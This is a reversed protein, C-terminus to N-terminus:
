RRGSGPRSHHKRPRTKGHHVSENQQEQKSKLNRIMGGKPVLRGLLNCETYGACGGKADPHHHEDHRGCSQVPVSLVGCEQGARGEFENWNTGGDTTWRFYASRSVITFDWTFSMGVEYVGAPRSPSTYDNLQTYTEPINLINSAKDYDYTMVNLVEAPDVTQFLEWGGDRWVNMTDTQYDWCLDGDQAQTPLDATLRVAQIHRAGATM